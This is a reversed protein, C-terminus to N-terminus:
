PSVPLASGGRRVVNLHACGVVQIKSQQGVSPAM